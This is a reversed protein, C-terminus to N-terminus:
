GVFGGNGCLGGTRSSMLMVAALGALPFSGTRWIEVTGDFGFCFGFGWRLRGSGISTTVSILASDILLSDGVRPNPELERELGMVGGLVGLVGLITM